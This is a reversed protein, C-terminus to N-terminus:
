DQKGLSFGGKGSEYMRWVEWCTLPAQVTAFGPTLTTPSPCYALAHLLCCVLPTLLLSPASIQPRPQPLKETTTFLLAFSEVPFWGHLFHLFIIGPRPYLLHLLWAFSHTQRRLVSSSRRNFLNSQTPLTNPCPWTLFATPTM